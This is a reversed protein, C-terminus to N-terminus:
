WHRSRSTSVLTVQCCPRSCFIIVEFMACLVVATSSVATV